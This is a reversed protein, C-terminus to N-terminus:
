WFDELSQLYRKILVNCMQNSQMMKKLQAIRSLAQSSTSDKLRDSLEGFTLKSKEALERLLNALSKITVLRFESESSLLTHIFGILNFLMSEPNAKDLLGIASLNTENARSIIKRMLNSSLLVLNDDRSRFLSLMVDKTMNYKFESEPLKASVAAKYLSLPDLGEIVEENQIAFYTSHGM